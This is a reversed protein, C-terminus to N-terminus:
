ELVWFNWCPREEWGDALYGFDAKVFGEKARGARVERGGAGSTCCLMIVVKCKDGGM